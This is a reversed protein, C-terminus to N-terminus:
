GAHLSIEHPRTLWAAPRRASFFCLRSRRPWYSGFCSAGGAGLSTMRVKLRVFPRSLTRQESPSPLLRSVLRLTLGLHTTVLHTGRHLIRVLGNYPCNPSCSTWMPKKSPVWRIAVWEKFLGRRVVFGVHGPRLQAARRRWPLRGALVHLSCLRVISLSIRAGGQIARTSSVVTNQPYSTTCSIRLKGYSRTASSLSSLM